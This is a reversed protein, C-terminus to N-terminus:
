LLQLQVSSFCLDPTSYILLDFWHSFTLSLFITDSELDQFHNAWFLCIDRISCVYKLAHIDDCLQCGIWCNLIRTSEGVNLNYSDFWNMLSLWEYVMDISGLGTFMCRLRDLILNGKSNLFREKEGMWGRLARLLSGFYLAFVTCTITIVNYPMSFDPTTLPVPLVKTYSFAHNNEQM